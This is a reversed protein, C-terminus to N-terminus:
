ARGLAILIEPAHEAFHEAPVHFVHEVTKTVGFNTSSNLWEDDGVRDLEGMLADTGADYKRRISARSSRMAGLRTNLVNLPNTIFQPPNFGRGRRASNLQGRLFEMAWAM